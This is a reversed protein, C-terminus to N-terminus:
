LRFNCDFYVRLAIVRAPWRISSDCNQMLVPLCERVCNPSMKQMILMVCEEAKKRTDTSVKKDGIATLLPGVASVLWPQALVMNTAALEEFRAIAAVTASQDKKDINLIAPMLKACENKIALYM